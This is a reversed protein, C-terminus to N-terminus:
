ITPKLLKVQILTCRIRFRSPWELAFTVTVRSVPPLNDITRQEVSVADVGAGAPRGGVLLEVGFQDSKTRSTIFRGGSKSASPTEVLPVRTRLLGSRDGCTETGGFAADVIQWKRGGGNPCRQWVEPMYWVAEAICGTGARGIAIRSSCCRSLPPPFRGRLNAAHDAFM